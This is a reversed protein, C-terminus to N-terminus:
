FVRFFNSCLIFTFSSLEYPSTSLELAILMSSSILKMVEFELGLLLLCTEDILLATNALFIRSLISYSFSGNWAWVLVAVLSSLKFLVSSDVCWSVSDATGVGNIFFSNLVISYVSDLVHLQLFDLHRLSYQSHKAFLLNQPPLQAQLPQLLTTSCSSSLSWAFSYIKILFGNANLGFISVDKSSFEKNLFCILMSCILKYSYLSTSKLQEVLGESKPIKATPSLSFLCKLPQM